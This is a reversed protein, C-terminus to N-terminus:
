SRVSEVRGSCRSGRRPPALVEDAGEPCQNRVLIYRVDDAEIFVCDNEDTGYFYDSPATDAKYCVCSDKGRNNLDTTITCAGCCSACGGGDMFCQDVGAVRGDDENSTTTMTTTTTTARCVALAAVVDDYDAKLADYKAQLDDGGGDGCKNNAEATLAKQKEFRRKYCAGDECPPLCVECTGEQVAIAPFVFFSTALVLALPLHAM